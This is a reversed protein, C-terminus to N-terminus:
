DDWTIKIGMTGSQMNDRHRYLQNDRLFYYSANGNFEIMAFTSTGDNDSWRTEIPDTGVFQITATHDERLEFKNNFEDTFKGVFGDHGGKSCSVLGLTMVMAIVVWLKLTKKM